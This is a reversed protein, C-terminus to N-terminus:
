YFSLQHVFPTIGTIFVYIGDSSLSGSHTSYKEGELGRINTHAFSGPGFSITDKGSRYQGTGEELFYNENSDDSKRVGSLQGGERFCLEITVPVKGAGEINFMINNRENEEMLSVTIELTKLSVPRNGFDMKSWFRDDTSPTLRYDGSKNRLKAPLPHYYPVEWKNHLVYGEGQRRLGNSRFYGMNFFRCSLRMHRLIADGKRYSYFDPIHSRGSAIILPWDTGGFFTTSTDGRRIRLLSSGSFVKEYNVPLISPEPLEKQLLPNELFSVLSHSIITEDFGDMGEILRAIAAFDSDNDHIALYRYFLYSGVIRQTSFQDQRRSNNTILDGNPEMHYFTKRLSRRVYDYLEPKHLLRGVDILAGNEVRDYNKSREPYEGDEDIFVGEGLWDDVRNVYVQDPYLANARSLAACVVWRHNPTHVGGAAIGSAANNIFVELEGKIKELIDSNDKLLLFVGASITEILFATDPPSQLNGFDLTGDPHQFEKLVMVIDELINLVDKSKYYASLPYCYSASMVSFIGGLSRFNRANEIGGELQKFLLTVQRDNSESLRKMIKEEDRPESGSEPEYDSQPGFSSIHFPSLAATAM